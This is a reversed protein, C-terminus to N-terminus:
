AIRSLIEPTHSRTNKDHITTSTFYNQNKAEGAIKVKEQLDEIKLSIDYIMDKLGELTFDSERASVGPHIKKQLNGM